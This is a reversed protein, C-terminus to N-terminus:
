GHSAHYEAREEAFTRTLEAFGDEDVPRRKEEAYDLDAVVYLSVEPDLVAANASGDEGSTVLRVLGPPGDLVRVGNPNKSNTDYFDAFYDESLHRVELRLDAREKQNRYLCWDYGEDESLGGRAYTARGLIGKVEPSDAAPCFSPLEVELQGLGGNAEALSDLVAVLATRKARSKADLISDAKEDATVFFGTTNNAVGYADSSVFDSSTAGVYDTRNLETGGPGELLVGLDSVAFEGPYYGWELVPIGGAEGYTLSCSYRVRDDSILVGYFDTTFDRTLVIDDRRQKPIFAEVQKTPVATCPDIVESEEPEETASETPESATPSGGSSPAAAPDADGDGCGVLSGALALTLLLPTLRMPVKNGTPRVALGTM